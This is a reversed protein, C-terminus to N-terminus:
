LYRKVLLKFNAGLLLGSLDEVLEPASTYSHASGIAHLCADRILFGFPGEDSPRQKSSYSTNHPYTGSKILGSSLSQLKSIIIPKIKSKCYDM